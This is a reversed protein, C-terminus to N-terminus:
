AHQSVAFPYGDLAARISELASDAYARPVRPSVALGTPVPRPPRPLGPHVATPLGWMEDANAVLCAIGLGAHIAARLGILEAGEYASTWPVGAGDVAALTLGRLTSPETFLALPLPAGHRAAPRGFWALEIPGIEEVRYAPDDSPDILLALDLSGAAIQETLVESPGTRLTVRSEPAARKLGGLIASLAESFQDSIGVSVRMGGRPPTFRAVAEDNLSLMKRAYALLEQGAPSLRLNRGTAAFVPEKLFADLRRMQQSVAPQTLHLAKAARGFGGQDVIAALTRLTGIQLDHTM